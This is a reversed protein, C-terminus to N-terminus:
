ATAVNKHMLYKIVGDPYGAIQALVEYHHRRYFDPAQFSLTTLYFIDCGRERARSEFEIVLRSGIGANRQSGDVWLQQLECCRGWTRGVAGGVVRGHADTAFAALQMVDAVSAAEHNYADLGDDVARIWDPSPQEPSQIEIEEIPM